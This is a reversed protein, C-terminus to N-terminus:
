RTLQFEGEALLQGSTSVYRMVYAGPEALFRGLPMRNVLTKREPDTIFQEYGFLESSGGRETIVLNVKTGDVPTLLLASWAVEEDLRFSTEPNEASGFTITGVLSESPPPDTTAGASFVIERTNTGDDALATIEQAMQDIVDFSIRREGGGMLPIRLEITQADVLRATTDVLSSTTTTCDGSAGVDWWRAALDTDGLHAVTISVCTRGIPGDAVFTGAPLEVDGIRRLPACDSPVLRERPTLQRGIVLVRDGPGVGEIPADITMFAVQPVDGRVRTQITLDYGRAQANPSDVFRAVLGAAVIEDDELTALFRPMMAARLSVPCGLPPAQSTAPVDLTGVMSPGLVALGVVVVLAVVMAALVGAWPTSSSSLRETVMAETLTMPASDAEARLAAKVRQDIEDHM